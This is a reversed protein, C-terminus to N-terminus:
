SNCSSRSIECRTLDGHSCRLTVYDYSTGKCHASDCRRRSVENCVQVPKGRSTTQAPRARSTGIGSALPPPGEVFVPRYFCSASSLLVVAIVAVRRM